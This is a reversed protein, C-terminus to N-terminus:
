RIDTIRASSVTPATAWRPRVPQDQRERCELGDAALAATTAHSLAGGAGAVIAVHASM